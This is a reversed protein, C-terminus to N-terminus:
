RSLVNGPNRSIWSKIGTLHEKEHKTPLEFCINPLFLNFRSPIYLDHKSYYYNTLVTSSIWLNKVPHMAGCESCQVIDSKNYASVGLSPYGVKMFVCVSLKGIQCKASPKYVLASPVRLVARHFLSMVWEIIQAAPGAPYPHTQLPAM